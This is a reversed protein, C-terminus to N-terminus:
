FSFWTLILENIASIISNNRITCGIVGDSKNCSVEALFEEFTLLDINSDFNDEWLRESLVIFTDPCIKKVYDHIIGRNTEEYPNSSNFSKGCLFIFKPYTIYKSREKEM